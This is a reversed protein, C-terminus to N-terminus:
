LTINTTIHISLEYISHQSYLNNQVKPALVCFHKPLVSLIKAYCKQFHKPKGFCKQFHKAKAFCTQFKDTPGIWGYWLSLIEISWVSFSEQLWHYCSFISNRWFRKKHVRLIAEGKGGWDLTKRPWSGIAHHSAPTLRSFAASFHSYFPFPSLTPM